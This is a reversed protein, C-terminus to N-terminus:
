RPAGRLKQACWVVEQMTQERIRENEDGDTAGNTLQATWVREARRAEAGVRVAVRQACCDVLQCCAASIGHHAKRIAHHAGSIVGQLRQENESGRWVACAHKLCIQSGMPPSSRTEPVHTATGVLGKPPRLGGPAEGSAWAGYARADAETLLRRDMM